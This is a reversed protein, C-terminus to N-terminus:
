EDVMNNDLFDGIAALDSDLGSTWYDNVLSAYSSADSSTEFLPVNWMFAVKYIANNGSTKTERWLSDTGDVRNIWKFSLYGAGVLAAWFGGLGAPTDYGTEKFLCYGLGSSDKNFVGIGNTVTESTETGDEWDCATGINGNVKGLETGITGIKVFRTRIYALPDNLTKANKLAGLIGDIIDKKEDTAVQRILYSSVWVM